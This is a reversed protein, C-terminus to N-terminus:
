RRGARVAWVYARSVGCKKAVEVNSLEPAEGLVLIRKGGRKPMGMMVRWRYVCQVNIGLEAAVQKPPTGSKLLRGATKITQADIMKM